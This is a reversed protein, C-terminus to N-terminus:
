THTHLKTRHPIFRSGGILIVQFNACYYHEM